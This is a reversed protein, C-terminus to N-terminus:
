KYRIYSTITIRTTENKKNLQSFFLKIDLIVAHTIKICM